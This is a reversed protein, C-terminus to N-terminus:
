EVVHITVTATDTGQGHAAALKYEFTLDGTFHRGPEITLEGHDGIRIAGDAEVGNSVVTWAAAGGPFMDNAMLGHAADLTTREEMKVTYEDDVPAAKDVVNVTIPIPASAIGGENRAMLYITEEGRFAENAPVYRIQDGSVSLKKIDRGAPVWVDLTSDSAVSCHLGELVTPQSGGVAIPNGDATDPTTCVPAEPTVSVESRSSADNATATVGVGRYGDITFHLTATQVDGANMHPVLYNITSADNSPFRIWDSPVKGEVPDKLGDLHLRVVSSGATDAWVTATYDARGGKTVVSGPSITSSVSASGAPELAANVAETTLFGRSMGIYSGGNGAGKGDTNYWFVDPTNLEGNNGYTYIAEAIFKPFVVTTKFCQLVSMCNVTDDETWSLVSGRHAEDKLQKLTSGAIGPAPTKDTARACLNSGNVSPTCDYNADSTPFLLPNNLVEWASM